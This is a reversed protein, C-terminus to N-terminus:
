TVIELANLTRAITQRRIEVRRQAQETLEPVADVLEEVHAELNAPEPLDEAALRALLMERGLAMAEDRVPDSEDGANSDFVAVALGTTRAFEAIESLTPSPNRRMWVQMRGAFRRLAISNLAAADTATLTQGEVCPERVRLPTDHIFVTISTM